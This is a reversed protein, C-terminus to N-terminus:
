KVIVGDKIVYTDFHLKSYGNKDKIKYQCTTKWGENTAKIPSCIDEDITETADLTKDWYKQLPKPVRSKYAVLPKKGFKEEYERLKEAEDAILNNRETQQELIEKDISSLETDNTNSQVRWISETIYLTLLIGIILIYKIIKM